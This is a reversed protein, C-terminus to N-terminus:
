EECYEMIKNWSIVLKQKSQTGRLRNDEMGTNCTVMLLLLAIGNCAQVPGSPELLNLSGTKLVTLVHLHYPQWGYAGAVKVGLFYEQYENRYSASDVGSPNDMFFKLSLMPFWIQSRGAQQVTGWGVTGSHVGTVM